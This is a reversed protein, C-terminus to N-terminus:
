PWSASAPDCFPKKSPLAGVSVPDGARSVKSSIPLTKSFRQGKPQWLALTRLRFHVDGLSVVCSRGRGRRRYSALVRPRTSRLHKCIDSQMRRYGSAHDARLTSCHGCGSKLTGGLLSAPHCFGRDVSCDLEVRLGRRRRQRRQRSQECAFYARPDPMLHNVCM